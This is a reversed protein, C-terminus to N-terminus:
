GKWPGDGENPSKDNRLVFEAMEQEAVRDWSYQKAYKYALDAKQAIEDPHKFAWRLNQALDHGDETLALTACSADLVGAIGPIATAIIPLESAMAEILVVPFGEFVSPMVFFDYQIYIQAMQEYPVPLKFDVRDYVGLQEALRGLTQKLPGDGFIDLKIRPYEDKLHSLAEISYRHGKTEVLRGVSLLRVLEPNCPHKKRNCFQQLDVGNPIYSVRSAIKPSQKLEDAFWKGASIIRDYKLKGSRLLCNMLFGVFGYVPGYFRLWGKLTRPLNHVMAIRKLAPLRIISLLFSPPFPSIDERIIDFKEGKLLFYIHFMLFLNAAALCFYHPAPFRRIVWDPLVKKHYLQIGQYRESELENINTKAALVVVDHGLSVLRKAVEKSRIEAGGEHRLSAKNIFLIRMSASTYLGM